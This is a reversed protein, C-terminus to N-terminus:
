GVLNAPARADSQRLQSSETEQGLGFWVNANFPNGLRQTLERLVPTM